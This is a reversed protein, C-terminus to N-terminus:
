EPALVDEETPFVPDEPGAWPPYEAVSLVPEEVPALLEERSLSLDIDPCLRKERLLSLEVLPPLPKEPSAPLVPEEVV